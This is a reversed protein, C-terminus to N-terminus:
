AIWSYNVRLYRRLSGAKLRTGDEVDIKETVTMLNSFRINGSEYLVWDCCAVYRGFAVMASFRLSGARSRRSGAALRRTESAM